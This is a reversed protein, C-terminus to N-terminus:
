VIVYRIRFVEVQTGVCSLLLRAFFFFPLFFSFLVFLIRDDIGGRGIRSKKHALTGVVLATGGSEEEEEKM